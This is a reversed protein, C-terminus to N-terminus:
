MYAHSSYIEAPLIARRRRRRVHSYREKPSMVYRRGARIYLMYVTSGYLAPLIHTKHVIYTHLTVEGKPLYPWIKKRQANKQCWERKEVSMLLPRKRRTQMALRSLLPPTTRHTVRQFKWLARKGKRMQHMKGRGGREGVGGWNIEEERERSHLVVARFKAERDGSPNQFPFLLCAPFPPLKEVPSPLAFGSGSRSSVAVALITTPQSSPSFNHTRGRIKNCLLKAIHIEASVACWNCHFLGRPPKKKIRNSFHNKTNEAKSLSSM